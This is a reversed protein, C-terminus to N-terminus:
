KLNNERALNILELWKNESNLKLNTAMEYPCCNIAQHKTIFNYYIALGKMIVNASEISGHFGRFTKTRARLSNHLREIPYNFGEDRSAIVKKHIINYKRKHKDYGFTKRVVKQYAMFGDTTIVKINDDSKDKIQELVRKIQKKNRSKVYNSAVLFKTEPCVSDIFWNRDIGKKAKHSKRRHYEMEDMQIESGTRVKIRDTFKSIVKSYRVIWRYITANNSNHPYFAKLHEQIKRTSIGRYFLDLCLTIKNPNNRMRFFGDKDIFRYSCVKCRYRQIAGRNKTIRYGDKKSEVKCKPCIM